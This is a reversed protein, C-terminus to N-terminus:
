NEQRRSQDVGNKWYHHGGLDRGGDYERKRERRMYTVIM